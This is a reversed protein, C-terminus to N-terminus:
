ATYGKTTLFHLSQKGYYSAGTKDVETSALLLVYTGKNNWYVDVKDAKFFTKNAVCNEHGFNPYKFLKGFSPGSASTGPMYCLFHYASGPSLSF